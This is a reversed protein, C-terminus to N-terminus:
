KQNPLIILGCNGCRQAAQKKKGISLSIPPPGVVREGGIFKQMASAGDRIWLLTGDAWGAMMQTGCDPCERTSNPDSQPEATAPASYPNQNM